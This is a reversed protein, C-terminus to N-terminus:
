PDLAILATLTDARLKYPAIEPDFATLADLTLAGKRYPVRVPEFAMMTDEFVIALEL